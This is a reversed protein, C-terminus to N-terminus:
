PKEAAGRLAGAIIRAFDDMLEPPLEGETDWLIWRMSVFHNMGMLAFALLEPDIRQVEGEDMAEALAEAYGKAFGGFFEVALSPDAEDILHLLRHLDRHEVLWELFGKTGEVEAEVRSGGQAREAGQRTADTMQRQLTRILEAFIAAKSEFYNYFSGQAVGSRRVMEAISAEAYGYEAFCQEAAQLIKQRTARGRATTPEAVPSM